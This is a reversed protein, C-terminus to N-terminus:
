QEISLILKPHMLILIEDKIREKEDIEVTKKTIEKKGSLKPALKRRKKQM